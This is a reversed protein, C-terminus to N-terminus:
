TTNRQITKIKKRNQEAGYDSLVFKDCHEKIMGRHRCDRTYEYCEDCNFCSEIVEDPRVTHWLEEVNNVCYHCVCNVCEIVPNDLEYLLQKSIKYKKETQQVQPKKMFDYLDMQGKM